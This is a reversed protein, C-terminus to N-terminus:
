ERVLHEVGRRQARPEWGILQRGVHGGHILGVAPEDEGFPRDDIVDVGGVIEACLDM